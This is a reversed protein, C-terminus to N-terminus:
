KVIIIEIKQPPACVQMFMYPNSFDPNAEYFQERQIRLLEAKMDYDAKREMYDLEIKLIREENSM